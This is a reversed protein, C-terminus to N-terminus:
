RRETRQQIIDRPLSINMQFCMKVDGKKYCMKLVVLILLICTHVILLLIAYWFECIITTISWVPLYRQFPISLVFFVLTSILIMCYAAGAILGKMFSPTQACLFEIAGTYLMVLSTTQFLEPIAIWRYDLSDKFTNATTANMSWIFVEHLLILILASYDFSHIFSEELYCEKLSKSLNPKYNMALKNIYRTYHTLINYQLYTAM